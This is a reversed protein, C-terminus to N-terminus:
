KNFYRSKNTLFLTLAIIIDRKIESFDILLLKLESYVSDVKSGLSYEHRRFLTEPVSNIISIIVDIRAFSPM